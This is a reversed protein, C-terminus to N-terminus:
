ARRGRSARGSKGFIAPPAVAARVPARAGQQQQARLLLYLVFLVLVGGGGVLLWLLTQDTPADDPSPNPTDGGSPAGGGGGGGGGSGGGSGSGGGGGGGGGGSPAPGVDPVPHRDDYAMHKCPRTTTYRMHGGSGQSGTNVDTTNGTKYWWAGGTCGGDTQFVQFYDDDKGGKKYFQMSQGRGWGKGDKSCWDAQAGDQKNSWCKQMTFCGECFVNKADDKTSALTFRGSWYPSSGARSRSSSMSGKDPCLSVKFGAAEEAKYTWYLQKGDDAVWWGDHGMYQGPMEVCHLYIVEGDLAAMAKESIDASETCATSSM